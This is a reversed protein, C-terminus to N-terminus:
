QHRILTLHNTICPPYDEEYHSVMILTKDRQLCYQSIVERALQRTPTDMGHFPEDLILLLPNKVFARILLMLRQEGDSLEMYNRKAFQGTGFIKMWTSIKELDTEKIKKYLGITDYLGSAIINEVPIHKRYSRFIEPSVFGIHKKIDWISEGTGRKHGLLTVDCRYSQPNDACIISLLTSKGAGNKGHLAWREGKRVEWDLNKLINRNGYKISVNNLRLIVDDTKETEYTTERQLQAFGETVQKRASHVEQLLAANDINKAETLRMKMVEGNKIYVLHTFAETDQPMRCVTLIIQIPFSRIIEQLFDAVQKRNEEDLGIYPNEIIVLRPNKLITQAIQFRRFEGSSLSIIYKDMLEGIDLKNELLTLIKKGGKCARNLVDRVKPMSGGESELEGLLGQNWRLQYLSGAMSSYQDHFTLYFINDSIKNSTAPSFDYNIQGQLLIYSSMITKMLFTKGSGNHGYVIWNENNYMKLSIPKNFQYPGKPLVNDINLLIHQTEAM